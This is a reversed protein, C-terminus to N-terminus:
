KKPQRSQTWPIDQRLDREVYARLRGVAEAPDGTVTEPAIVPGIKMDYRKGRKNLLENFLTMNRLEANLVHFAYYMLSNRAKIHMPVLPANHRRMLNITTSLWPRERLGSVTMHALRGSPFIMVPRGAEFAQRALVLTERTKALTRKDEVWEVPILLDAFGPAVRQADRNAFFTIDPRVPKIADYVAIGDAIGTPHNAILIFPGERPIHETGTVRIDIALARSVYDMAAIGSMPAIDDAMRRAESYRLLPYIVSRVLPWLPSTILKEAREEILMDVIHPPAAPDPGHVPATM